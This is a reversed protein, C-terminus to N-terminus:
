PSAPFLSGQAPSPQSLIAQQFQWIRQKWAILEQVTLPGADAKRNYAWSVEAAKLDQNSLL